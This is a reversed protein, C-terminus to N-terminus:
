RRPVDDIDGVWGRLANRDAEGLNLFRFGSWAQGPTNTPQLWLLHVGVEIDIDQALPSDLHFAVQYLASETLPASAILLMGTESINGLRGIVQGTMADTVPVMDPIARRPARRTDDAANM